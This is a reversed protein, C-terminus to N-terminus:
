IPPCVSPRVTNSQQLTFAITLKFTSCCWGGSSSSSGVPKLEFSGHLVVVVFFVSVSFHLWLWVSFNPLIRRCPKILLNIFETSLGLAVSLEWIVISLSSFSLTKYFPFIDHHSISVVPVGCVSIDGDKHMILVKRFLIPLLIGAPFFRRLFYIFLGFSLCVFFIFVQTSLPTVNIEGTYFECFTFIESHRKLNLLHM